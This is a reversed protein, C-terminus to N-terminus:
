PHTGSPLPSIRQRKKLVAILLYGPREPPFICRDLRAGLAFLLPEIYRCYRVGFVLDTAYISFLHLAYEHHTIEFLGDLQKQLDKLRYFRYQYFRAQQEKPTLRLWSKDNWVPPADLFQPTYRRLIEEGPFLGGRGSPAFAALSILARGGPALLRHFERFVADTNPIHVITDLSIIQDFAGDSFPTRASLDGVQFDITQGARHANLRAVAIEQESLNVGSIKMGCRALHIAFEGAGCAADLTHRAHKRVLPEARYFRPLYATIPLLRKQLRLLRDALAGPNM